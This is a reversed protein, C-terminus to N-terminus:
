VVVAVVALVDPEPVVLPWAVKLLTGAPAGYVAVAVVLPPVFVFTM